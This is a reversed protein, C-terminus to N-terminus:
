YLIICYLVCSYLVIQLLVNYNFVTCYITYEVPTCYLLIYELVTYQARCDYLCPVFCYLASKLLVTCYVFYLLATYEVSAYQLTFQLTTYRVIYYYKITLVSYYIYHLKSQYLGSCCIRCLVLPHGNGETGGNRWM